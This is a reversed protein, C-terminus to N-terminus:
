ALDPQSRVPYYDLALCARAFQEVLRPVVELGGPRVPWLANFLVMIQVQRVWVAIGPLATLLSIKVIPIKISARIARV